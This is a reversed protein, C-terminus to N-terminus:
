FGTSHYSSVKNVSAGRCLKFGLNKREIIRISVRWSKRSCFLRVYSFEFRTFFVLVVSSVPSSSAGHECMERVSMKMQNATKTMLNTVEIDVVSAYM